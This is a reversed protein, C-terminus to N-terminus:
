AHQSNLHTFLYWRFSLLLASGFSSFPMDGSRDVRLCGIVCPLLEINIIVSLFSELHPRSCHCWCLSLYPPEEFFEFHNLLMAALSELPNLTLTNFLSRIGAHVVSSSVVALDCSGGILTWPCFPCFVLSRTYM